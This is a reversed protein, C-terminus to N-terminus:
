SLLSRDGPHAFYRASRDARLTTITHTGTQDRSAQHGLVRPAWVGARGLGVGGSGVRGSGVGGSGVGGSGVSMPGPATARLFTYGGVWAMPGAVLFGSGNPCYFELDRM